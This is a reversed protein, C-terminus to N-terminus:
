NRIMYREGMCLSNAHISVPIYRLYSVKYQRKTQVTGRLVRPLRPFILLALVQRPKAFPPAQDAEMM